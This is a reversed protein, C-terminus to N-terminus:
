HQYVHVSVRPSFHKLDPGSFSGTSEAESLKV